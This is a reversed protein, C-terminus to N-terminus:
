KTGIQVHFLCFTETPMLNLIQFECLRWDVESDKVQDELLRELVKPSDQYVAHIVQVAQKAQKPTGEKAIKLLQPQLCGAVSPHKKDLGQASFLSM